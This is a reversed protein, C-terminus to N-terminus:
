EQYVGHTAQYSAALTAPVVNGECKQFSGSETLTQQWHQIEEVYACVPSRTM